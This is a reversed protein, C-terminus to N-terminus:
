EGIVRDCTITPVLMIEGNSNQYQTSGSISGFYSIPGGEYLSGAISNKLYTIEVVASSDSYVSVYATYSTENDIISLITGFATTLTGVYSETDNVIVGYQMPVYGNDGPRSVLSDNVLTLQSTATNLAEASSNANALVVTSSVVASRLRELSYVTYNTKTIERTYTADANLIAQALAKQDDNFAATNMGALPGTAPTTDSDTSCSNLAITLLIVLILLGACVGIFLPNTFISKKFAGCHPCRIQTRDVPNGCIRCADGTGMYDDPNPKVSAAKSGSFKEVIGSFFSSVSGAVSSAVAAVKNEGAQKKEGKDSVLSRPKRVTGYASESSAGAYPDDFTPQIPDGAQQQVAYNRQTQQEFSNTQGAYLNSSTRDDRM